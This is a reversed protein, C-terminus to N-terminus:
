TALLDAAFPLEPTRPDFTNTSQVKNWEPSGSIVLQSDRLQLTIDLVWIVISDQKIVDWDLLYTVLYTVDM